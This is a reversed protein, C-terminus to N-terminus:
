ESSARWEGRTGPELEGQVEFLCEVTKPAVAPNPREERRRQHGAPGYPGRGVGAYWAASIRAIGSTRRRCRM